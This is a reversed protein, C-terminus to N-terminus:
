CRGPLKAFHPVAEAATAVEAKSADLIRERMAAFRQLVAAEDFALIRGDRYAWRGDVMTARVSAPTAHQVLAALNLTLPTEAAGDMDVVTLDARYGAAIRGIEQAMGLARAGGETAWVLAERADPWQAPDPLAPRPLMMALRMVEFIDHRGGTNSGDSGLALPIGRARYDPIPAFGSGIMLNSVPNHVVTVGHDALLAREEPTTWIGHAVSLRQNVLGHRALEVIMGDRWHRLGISAQAQTELLHTHVHVGLEGALERWVSWLEPSCRQPANPGLLLAIRGDKGHWGAHIRRFLAAMDTADPRKPGEVRRRLDPPLDIGLLDHDFRDHLMPALGVRMGSRCHAELAADVRGAHAFHDITSTVGARLMEAAGLLIATQIGDDDLSRGYAVTYLAWQELPLSNETGRVVTGYSHYHANVLGPMLVRGALDSRSAARRRLAAAGAEDTALGVIRADEVLVAGLPLPSWTDAGPLVLRANELLLADM